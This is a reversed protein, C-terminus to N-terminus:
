SNPILQTLATTWSRRIDGDTRDLRLQQWSEFSTLTAMVGVLDDAEDVTIGSLETEFHHRLQSAYTHRLGTLLELAADDDHARSRVLQGIPRGVEYLRLRVDVVRDIREGLPGAGIEPVEFLHDYRQFYVEIASRRLDDLGDFYRFLSAPSVGARAALQEVTPPLHGELVLDIMADTVATRGRERRLTRGDIGSDHTSEAM